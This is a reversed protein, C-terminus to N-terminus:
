HRSRQQDSHPPAPPSHLCCPAGRSRAPPQLAKWAESCAAVRHLHPPGGATVSRRAAPATALPSATAAGRGAGQAGKGSQLRITKSTCAGRRRRAGRQRGHHLTPCRGGGALRFRGFQTSLPTRCVHTQPHLLPSRGACQRQVRRRAPPALMAAAAHLLGRPAPACSARHGATNVTAPSTSTPSMRTSLGAPAAPGGLPEAASGHQCENAGAQSSDPAPWAARV